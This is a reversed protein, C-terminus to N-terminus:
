SIKAKQAIEMLYSALIEHSHLSLINKYCTIAEDYRKLNYLCIGKRYMARINNPEKQLISETKALDLEWSNITGFVFGKQGKPETNSHWYVYKSGHYEKMYDDSCALVNNKTFHRLLEDGESCDKEMKHAISEYIMNENCVPDDIIFQGHLSHEPMVLIIPRPHYKNVLEIIKTRLALISEFFLTAIEEEGVTKQEKSLTINKKKYDDMNGLKAQSYPELILTSFIVKIM